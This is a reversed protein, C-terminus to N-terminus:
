QWKAINFIGKVKQDDTGTPFYPAYVFVPEVNSDCVDESIGLKEVPIVEPEQLENTEKIGLYESLFLPRVLVEDITEEIIRNGIRLQRILFDIIGLTRLTALSVDYYM